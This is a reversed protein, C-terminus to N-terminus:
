SAIHLTIESSSMCAGAAGRLQGRTETKTNKKELPQLAFAAAARGRSINFSQLCFSLSVIEEILRSGLTERDYVGIRSGDVTRIRCSIRGNHRHWWYCAAAVM